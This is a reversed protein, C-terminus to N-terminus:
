AASDEAAPAPMVRRFTMASGENELSLAGNKYTFGVAEDDDDSTVLMKDFDFNLSIEEGMFTMTGKGDEDISLTPMMDMAALVGIQESLDEGDANVMGTLVYPGAFGPDGLKFSASYKSYHITMVDDELSFSDVVYGSESYQKKEFDFTLEYTENFADLLGTGDEYLVLNGVHAFNNTKKGSDDVIEVFEYYDFVGEGTSKVEPEKRTFFMTMEEDGFSLVGDEFKYPIEKDNILLNKNKTDVTFDYTEGYLNISATGDERIELTASLGLATAAAIEASHDEGSGDDMNVLYWTGCLDDEAALVGATLAPCLLLVALLWVITKKM